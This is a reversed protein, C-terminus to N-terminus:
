SKTLYPACNLLILKVLLLFERDLIWLPLWTLILPFWLWWYLIVIGVPGVCDPVFCNGNVVVVGDFTLIVVIGVVASKVPVNIVPVGLVGRDGSTVIDDIFDRPWPAGGVPVPISPIWPCLTYSLWRTLVALVLLIANCECGDVAGCVGAIIKCPLLWFCSRIWCDSICCICCTCWTSWTCWTCVGCCLWFWFRLLNFAFLWLLLLLLLLLLLPLLLDFFLFLFLLPLWLLWILWILCIVCCESWDGRYLKVDVFNFLNFEVILIVCFIGFLSGAIASAANCWGDCSEGIDGIEGNVGPWGRGGCFSDNGCIWPLELGRIALGVPVPIISLLPLTFPALPTLPTLPALTVLVLLIFLLRWLDCVTSTSTTSLDLPPPIFTPLLPSTSAFASINSLDVLSLTVVAVFVFVFVGVRVLVPVAVTVAVPVPVPVPVPTTVPVKVRVFFVLELYGRLATSWVGDSLSSVSLSVSELDLDRVRDLVLDGVRDLDLDPDLLVCDSDGVSALM